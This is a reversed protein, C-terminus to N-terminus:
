IFPLVLEIRKILQGTAEDRERAVPFGGQTAIDPVGSREMSRERGMRAITVKCIGSTSQM